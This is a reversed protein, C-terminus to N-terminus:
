LVQISVKLCKALDLQGFDDYFGVGLFRATKSKHNKLLFLRNILNHPKLVLVKDLFFPNVAFWSQKALFDFLLFYSNLIEDTSFIWIWFSKMLNPWLILRFILAHALLAVPVPSCNFERKAPDVLGDGQRIRSVSVKKSGSNQFLIRQACGANIRGM